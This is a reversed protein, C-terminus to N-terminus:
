LLTAAIGSLAVALAVKQESRLKQMVTNQVMTKGTGGAGNLFFLSGPAGYENDDNLAIAAMIQDAAIRQDPNLKNWALEAEDPTINYSMEERLLRNPIDSMGDFNITPIPLHYRALDETREPTSVYELKGDILYLAYQHAYDDQEGDPILLGPIDRQLIRICDSSMFEKYKNWLTLADTPQLELLVMVFLTRLGYGEQIYRGEDLVEDTHRDNETLGLEICAEKWEILAGDVTRLDKFSTAGKRHCLLLRCYYLDKTKPSIFNMRGLAEGKERVKWRKKGKMWTFHEPFDAYLYDLPNKMVELPRGNSKKFPLPENRDLAEKAIRNMNFYETLTTRRLKDNDILKQKAAEAVAQNDAPQFLVRQQDPLHIQLREVHPKMTGMGFSFMKWVAEASGIWRASHFETIEDVLEGRVRPRGSPAPNDEYRTSQRTIAVDARDPGKYVYKYLYFVSKISGCIEINIHAGYKKLLYPNYPVVWRNDIDTDPLPPGTPRRYFPYSGDPAFCTEERFDKPFAKSCCNKEKSYCVDRPNGTCRNHVMHQLVLEHLKEDDVKNPVFAQVVSDVDEVSHIRDKYRIILLIHAHPLGRKQFEIVYCHAVDIGLVHKTILDDLLEDLKRKFVRATLDHRHEPGQGPELLDLIDPWKPNCTFTIFYEPKGRKRVITMADQMKAKIYRPSEPMTSPLITVKSGIDKLSIDPDTSLRDMLGSYCDARITQQNQRYWNLDNM